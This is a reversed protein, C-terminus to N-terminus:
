ASSWRRAQHRLILSDLVAKAIKKEEPDFQALAEFQLRLDDEPGREDKDFLLLDASVSLVVALHQLVELTPQSSGAEYRKVMSIHIGIADALTQQTLGKAKRLTVLRKPFDMAALIEM